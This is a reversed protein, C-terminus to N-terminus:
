KRKILKKQVLKNFYVRLAIVLIGFLRIRGRCICEGEFIEQSFDPIIQIDTGIWGYLVAVWKAVTGTLEMDEFGFHLYVYCKDPKIKTLLKKFNEWLFHVLEHNEEDEVIAQIQAIKEATNEKLQLLRRGIGALKAKIGIIWHKWQELVTQLKRKLSFHNNKKYEKTQRSIDKTNSETQLLTESNSDDDVTRNEKKKFEPEDMSLASVEQQAPEDFITKPTKEKKKSEAKQHASVKHKQKTRKKQVKKKEESSFVPFLLVRLQYQMTQSFLLHFNILHMLWSAKVQVRAQEKYVAEIRYRIPVFLVVGVLLLVLGLFVLIIIGMIKLILLLISLM